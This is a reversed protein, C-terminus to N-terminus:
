RVNLIEAEQILDKDGGAAALSLKLVVRRSRRSHLLDREILLMAVGSSGHGLM